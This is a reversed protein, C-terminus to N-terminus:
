EHSPRSGMQRRHPPLPEAVLAVVRALRRMLRPPSKLFLAWYRGTERWGFRQFRSM